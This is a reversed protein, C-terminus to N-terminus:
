RRNEKIITEAYKVIEYPVDVGCIDGVKFGPSPNVELVTYGKDSLMIDVGGVRLGLSRCSSICLKATDSDLKVPKASGGNALNAIFDGEPATREMAAVVNDGVVFARIDRCNAETIFEQVIYDKNQQALELETKSNILYIGAGRNSYDPKAVAPLLISSYDRITSHWSHPTRIKSKVFSKYTELKSASVRISKEDALFLAETFLDRIKSIAEMTDDIAQASFRPIVIEPTFYLDLSEFYLQLRCDHGAETFSKKLRVAGVAKQSGTIILVNM